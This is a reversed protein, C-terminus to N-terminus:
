VTVFDSLKKFIIGAQKRINEVGKMLKVPGKHITIIERLNICNAPLYHTCM